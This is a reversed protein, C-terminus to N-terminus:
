VISSFNTDMTEHVDDMSIETVGKGIAIAANNVLIHVKGHEQIVTSWAKDVQDQKAMDVKYFYIEKFEKGAEKSLESKLSELREDSRSM